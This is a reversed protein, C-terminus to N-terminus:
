EEGGKQEIVKVRYPSADADAKVRAFLAPDVPPRITIYITRGETEVYISGPPLLPLKARAHARAEVETSQSITRPLNKPSLAQVLPHKTVACGMGSLSALLAIMAIFLVRRM